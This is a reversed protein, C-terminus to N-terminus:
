ETNNNSHLLKGVKSFTAFQMENSIVKYCIAHALTEDLQVIKKYPHFPLHM